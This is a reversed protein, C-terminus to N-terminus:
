IAAMLDSFDLDGFAWENGFESRFWRFVMMFVLWLYKFDRGHGIGEGPWLWGRGMPHPSPRPSPFSRSMEVLNASDSDLVLKDTLITSACRHSPADPPLRPAAAGPRVVCVAWRFDYRTKQARRVPMRDAEACGTM